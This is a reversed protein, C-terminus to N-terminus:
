RTLLGNEATEEDLDRGIRSCSSRKVFVPQGYAKTNSFPDVIM